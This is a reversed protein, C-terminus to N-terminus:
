PVNAFSPAPPRCPTSPLTALETGLSASGTIGWVTGWLLLSLLVTVPHLRLTAGFLVPELVSGALAHASLPLAFALVARMLSFPTELVVLPMPLAVALVTGVNPIFQVRM